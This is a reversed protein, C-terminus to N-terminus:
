AAESRVAAGEPITGVGPKIKVSTYKTAKPRSAANSPGLHKLHEKMNAARLTVPANPKVGDVGGSRRRLLYTTERANENFSSKRSAPAKGNLGEVDSRHTTVISHHRHTIKTLSEGDVKLGNIEEVIRDYLFHFVQFRPRIRGREFEIALDM